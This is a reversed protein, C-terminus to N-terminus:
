FIHLKEILDIFISRCNACCPCQSPCLMCGTAVSLALPLALFVPCVLSIGIPLKVQKTVSCLTGALAWASWVISSGCAGLVTRECITAIRKKALPEMDDDSIAVLLTVSFTLTFFTGMWVGACSWLLGADTLPLGLSQRSLLLTVTIGWLLGMVTLAVKVSEKARDLAEKAKDEDTKAEGADERGNDQSSEVDATGILTGSM